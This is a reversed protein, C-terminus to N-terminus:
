NQVMYVKTLNILTICVKHLDRIHLDMIVLDMIVMDIPVMIEMTDVMDTDVMDETDMHLMLDMLETTLVSIHVQRM